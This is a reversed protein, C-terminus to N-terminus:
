SDKEHIGQGAKTFKIEDALFSTPNVTIQRQKIPSRTEGFICLLNRNNNLHTPKPPTNKHYDVERKRIPTHKLKKNSGLAIPGNFEEKIVGVTLQLSYLIIPM